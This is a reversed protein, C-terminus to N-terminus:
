CFLLKKIQELVKNRSWQGLDIIEKWTDEWSAWGWILPLSTYSYDKGEFYKMPLLGSGNDGSIVKIKKNKKYKELLEDCFMFFSISPICDDELIIGQKENNFFWVIATKPGM